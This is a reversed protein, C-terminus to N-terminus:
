PADQLEDVQKALGSVDVWLDQHLYKFGPAQLQLMEPELRSGELAQAHGQGDSLAAGPAGASPTM